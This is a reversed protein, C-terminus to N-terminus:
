GKHRGRERAKVDRQPAEAGIAALVRELERRARDDAVREVRRSHMRLRHEHGARAVHLHHGVVLRQAM